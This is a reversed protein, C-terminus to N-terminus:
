NVTLLNNIRDVVFGNCTGETTEVGSAPASNDGCNIASTMM